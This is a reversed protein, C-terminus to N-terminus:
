AMLQDRIVQLALRRAPTSEPYTLQLAEITDLVIQSVILRSNNKDDAPVM